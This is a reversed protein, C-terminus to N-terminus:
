RGLDKEKRRSLNPLPQGLITSRSVHSTNETTKTSTRSPTLLLQSKRSKDISVNDLILQTPDSQRRDVEGEAWLDVMKIAVKDAERILAV